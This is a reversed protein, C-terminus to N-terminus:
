YKKKRYITNISTSHFLTEDGVANIDNGTASAFISIACCRNRQTPKNKKVHICKYMTCLKASMNVTIKYIRVLAHGNSDM